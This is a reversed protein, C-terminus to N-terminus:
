AHLKGDRRGVNRKYDNGIFIQQLLAGCLEADRQLHM